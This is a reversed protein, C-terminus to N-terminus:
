EEPGGMVTAGAATHPYPEGYRAEYEAAFAAIKRREGDQFWMTGASKGLIRLARVNNQTACQTIAYQFRRRMWKPLSDYTSWSCGKSKPLGDAVVHNEIQRKVAKGKGDRLVLVRGARGARRRDVPIRGAERVQRM